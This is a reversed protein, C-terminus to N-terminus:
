SAYTRNVELERAIDEPTMYKKFVRELCYNKYMWFRGSVACGAM